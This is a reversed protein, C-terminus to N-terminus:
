SAKHYGSRIMELFYQCVQRNIFPLALTADHNVLPITKPIQCSDIGYGDLVNKIPSSM